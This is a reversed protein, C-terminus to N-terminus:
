VDFLSLFELGKQLKMSIQCLVGRKDTGPDPRTLADAVSAGRGGVDASPSDARGVHDCRALAQPADVASAPLGGGSAVAQVGRVRDIWALM